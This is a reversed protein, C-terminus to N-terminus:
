RPPSASPRGPLNASRTSSGPAACGASSRTSTTRVAQAQAQTAPADFCRLVRRAPANLVVVGGDGAPNFAAWHGDDVALESADRARIWRDGPGSASAAARDVHRAHGPDAASVPCACDECGYVLLQGSEPLDFASVAVARQRQQMKGM